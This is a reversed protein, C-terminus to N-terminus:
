QLIGVLNELITHIQELFDYDAALLLSSFFVASVSFWFVLGFGSFSHDSPNIKIETLQLLRRVRWTVFDAQETLLFAGSPMAPKTGHPVIRAIKVLAAALNLATLNGGTQAAYEDAASEATETWARDLSQGFPFVLLDRCVRMSTRKFNDRAALHGYEHAVAAKIEDGTLSNFIQRAVFMKPRFTGVVAIVPFPHRMCFVPIGVNEMRIPEANKLWNNVLRRTKWWTGFVRYFAFSIGAVSLAAIAALKFSVIEDTVRPEFLLYSPLIVAFVFFLAIAFPFIRLAFITQSRRSASWNEAIPSIVRWLVTAAASILLNLVLLLAFMLCILLLVYM